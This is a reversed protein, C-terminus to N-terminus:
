ESFDSEKRKVEDRRNNMIEKDGKLEVKKETKEVRKKQIKEFRTCQLLYGWITFILSLQWSTVEVLRRRKNNNILATVDSGLKMEIKNYMTRSLSLQSPTM